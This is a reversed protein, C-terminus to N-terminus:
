LEVCKICELLANLLLSLNYHELGYGMRNKPISNKDYVNWGLSLIIFQLTLKIVPVM